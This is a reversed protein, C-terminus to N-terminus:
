RCSRKRTTSLKAAELAVLVIRPFRVWKQLDAKIDQGGLTLETCDREVSVMGCTVQVGLVEM